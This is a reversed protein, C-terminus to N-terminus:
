GYTRAPRERERRIMSGGEPQHGRSLRSIPVQEAVGETATPALRRLRHAILSAEEPTRSLKVCLATTSRCCLSPGLSKDRDLKSEGVTGSQSCELLSAVVVFRGHARVKMSM